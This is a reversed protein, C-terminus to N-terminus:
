SLNSSVSFTYIESYFTNTGDTIVAQFKHKGVEEFDGSTVTYSISGDSGTNTFSASLTTTTGSPKNLLLNATQTSAAIDVSTGSDLITFQFVTGVDGVHIENAAM